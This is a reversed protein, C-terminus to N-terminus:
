KGDLYRSLVEQPKSNLTTAVKLKPTPVLLRFPYRMSDHQVRMPEVLGEKYATAGVSMLWAIVSSRGCEFEEALRYIEEKLEPLEYAREKKEGDWEPPLALAFKVRYNRPKVRKPPEVKNDAWLELGNTVLWSVVSSPSVAQQEAIEDVLDLLPVPIYVTLRVRSLDREYKRRQWPKMKRLKAQRERAAMDKELVDVATPLDPKPGPAPTEDEYGLMAAVVNKRKFPNREDEGM